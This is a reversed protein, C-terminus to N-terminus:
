LNKALRIRKSSCRVSHSRRPPKANHSDDEERLSLRQPSEIKVLADRYSLTLVYPRLAPFGLVGVVQVGYHRSLNSLDLAVVENPILEQGAIQFHM